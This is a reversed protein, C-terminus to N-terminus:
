VPEGAARALRLRSEDDTGRMQRAAAVLLLVAVPLLIHISVISLPLSGTATSIRGVWYPGITLATMIIVLSFGAIAAGRMRQLVMDQVFAGAGGSWIHSFLAQFFFAVLFVTRDKTLFLLLSFPATLLVALLTMWMPAREDRRRWWDTIIGGSVIGIISGISVIAGIWVGAEQANMGLNRIAHPAGWFEVSAALITTIAMGGLTLVYTRDGFTLRFFPLDRRRIGEIWSGISYGGIAVLAWQLRDGTLIALLTGGAVIAALLTLNSRVAAAGGSRWASLLTLPFVSASFEAVIVRGLSGTPPTPRPPERLTIVVLSLLLGPLGAILFAAQWGAIGCAGLAGCLAPWHRVVMGGAILACAGGVVVGANYIGIAFARRHKPFYDALLSNGCPNAAAEGLGVGVRSFALILFTTALGSVVTMASWLVMSLALLRTRSVRDSIRGMPIGVVAFFVSFATGYLVGVQTDTLGLHRKVEEALITMMNRDFYNLFAVVSLVTLAYGSYARSPLAPSQNGAVSITTPLDAEGAAPRPMLGM